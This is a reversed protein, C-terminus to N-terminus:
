VETPSFRQVPPTNSCPFTLEAPEDAWSFGTAGSRFTPEGRGAPHAICAAALVPQSIARAIEAAPVTYAM